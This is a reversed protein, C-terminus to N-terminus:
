VSVSRLNRLTNACWLSSGALIGVIGLLAYGLPSGAVSRTGFDDHFQVYTANVLLRPLTLMGGVFCAALCAGTAYLLPMPRRQRAAPSAALFGLFPTATCVLILSTLAGRPLSGSKFWYSFVWDTHFSLLYGSAPGFVLLAHLLVIWAAQTQLVSAHGRVESAACWAFGFGLCLGM